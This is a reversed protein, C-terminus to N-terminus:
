DLVAQAVSRPFINFAQLALQGEEERLQLLGMRQLEKATSHGWSVLGLSLNQVYRELLRHGPLAKRIM